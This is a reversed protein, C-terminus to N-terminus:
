GDGDRMSSHLNELETRMQTITESETEEKESLRVLQPLYRVLELKQKPTGNHLTFELSEIIGLTLHEIRQHIDLPDPLESM